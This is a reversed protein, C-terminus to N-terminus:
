SSKVTKMSLDMPTFTILAVTHWGMSKTMKQLMFLTTSGISTCILWAEGIPKLILFRQVVSGFSNWRDRCDLCAQTLEEPTMNKPMFAAHNFRYEPHLWWKGDFLLRGEKELERYLPTNPYPMLINFAAFVFKHDIAYEVTERISDLTDHDYGLTFAAEM